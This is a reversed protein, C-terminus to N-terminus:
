QSTLVNVFFPLRKRLICTQLHQIQTVKGHTYYSLKTHDDPYSIKLLCFFHLLFYHKSPIQSSKNIAPKLLKVSRLRLFYQLGGKFLTFNTKKEIIIM